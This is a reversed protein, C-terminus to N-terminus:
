RPVAILWARDSYVIHWTTSQAIATALGRDAYWLVGHVGLEDLHDLAGPEARYLDLVMPVLDGTFLEARDDLFTPVKGGYAAELYNGVVDPTALRTDADLGYQDSWWRLAAVPYIGQREAPKSMATAVAMMSIVAVGALLVRLTPRRARWDLSGVDSLSRALVPVLVVSTIVINRAAFLGLPIFLAATVGLRWSGRRALMLMVVAINVLFVRQWMEDFAPPKWEVINHLLPSGGLLQLPFILLKLGLPNLAGLVTGGAVYLLTRRETSTDDRDLHGGMIYAGVAVVAFPFSGHTNVWLWMVPLLWRPDFAGECALVVAALCALGILFPREAWYGSAVVMAPTVAAVRGVLSHAPRSLRWLMAGILAALLGTFMQIGHLGFWREIQAYITSAFWSQVTWADGGATFTYPDTRPLHGDLILRGTALHTLFSSDGVPRLGICLAVMSVLAGVVVGITPGRGNTRAQSGADEIGADGIGADIDIDIDTDIDTDVGSSTSVSTALDLADLVTADAAAGVATPIAAPVGVGPDVSGTM